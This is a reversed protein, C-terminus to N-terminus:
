SELIAVMARVEEEDSIYVNGYDSVQKNVYTVPNEAILRASAHYQMANCEEILKKLNSSKIGAGPMIVIRNNAQQVLQNLIDGADPAASKQGSTLVRECGCEIIDELAKFPDPTGDFARN